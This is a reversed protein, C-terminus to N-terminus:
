NAFIQICTPITVIFPSFIDLDRPFILDILCTKSFQPGFIMLNNQNRSTLNRDLREKVAANIGDAEIREAEDLKSWQLIASWPEGAGYFLLALRRRDSASPADPWDDLAMELAYAAEPRTMELGELAPTVDWCYQQSDPYITEYRQIEDCTRGGVTEIAIIDPAFDELRDLVLVRTPEGGLDAQVGGFDFMPAAGTREFEPTGPLSAEDSEQAWVFVPTGLALIVAAMISKSARM